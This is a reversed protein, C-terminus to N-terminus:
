HMSKLCQLILHEVALWLKSLTSVWHRASVISRLGGCMLLHSSKVIDPSRYDSDGLTEGFLLTQSLGDTIDRVAVASRSYFVGPPSDMHLRDSVFGSCGLYNTTGRRAVSTGYFVSNGQLGTVVQESQVSEATPCVLESVTMGTVHDWARTSSFWPVDRSKISWNLEPLSVALDEAEMYPLLYALHGVWQDDTTTLPQGSPPGLHGPPLVRHVDLFHHAALALQRLNNQCWTRRAAERSTQVAPILLAILIGILALVVLVESITFANRSAQQIQKGMAKRQNNQCQTRRASERAHQVAPIVIALLVGIIAVVFVVELITIGRRISKRQLETLTLERRIM